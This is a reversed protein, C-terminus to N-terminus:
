EEGELVKAAVVEIEIRFAPRSLAKVVLLTSAPVPPEVYRDRVQMYAGLDAPDVLFTTIRVIDRASMGIEGLIAMVNDFALTAQGAIGEPVTGDPAIGLQGSAVLWTAGPGVSTGHSYGALPPHISAPNIRNLM